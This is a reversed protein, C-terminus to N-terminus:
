QRASPDLGRWNSLPAPGKSIEQSGNKVAWPTRRADGMSRHRRPARDGDRWGTVGPGVATVRGAVDAGMVHPFAIDTFVAGMRLYLDYRNIGCAAVKLLLEGGGPKPDQVDEYAFVEPPGFKHIVAAKM